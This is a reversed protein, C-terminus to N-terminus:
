KRDFIQQKRLKIMEIIIERPLPQDLPFQVSGKAKKYGELRDWFVAMVDPHPYLGVHKKYGAMMIQEERKGGKVLAYAPINYNFLEQADPVVSLICQKLEILANKVAEPQANIYAEVTKFPLNSDMVKTRRYKWSDNVFKKSFNFHRQGPMM